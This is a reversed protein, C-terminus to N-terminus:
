KRNLNAVCSSWEKLQMQHKNEWAIVDNLLDSKNLNEIVIFVNRMFDEYKIRSLATKRTKTKFQTKTWSLVEKFDYFSKDFTGQWEKQKTTEIQRNWPCVEQCIDCGVLHAGMQKTFKSDREGRKEINHYALCKSANLQYDDLAKTPCAELCLTCSACQDEVVETQINSIDVNCLIVSLFVFSGLDPDILCTNKGVWGLGAKVAVDREIIPGTDVFSRWKFDDCIEKQIWESLEELRSKIWIHYDEGHAYRAIKVEHDLPNQHFYNTSLVILSRCEDMLLNPQVRKDQNKALYAMEGHRGEKLWDKYYDSHSLKFDSTVGINDFGIEKAKQQIKQFDSQSVFIM